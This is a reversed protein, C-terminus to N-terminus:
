PLETLMVLPPVSLTPERVAWLPFVHVGPVPVTSIVAPLVMGVVSNVDKLLRVILPPVVVSAALVVIAPFTDIAAPVRAPPENLWLTAPFQDLAPANVLVPVTVKFPAAWATLPDLPVANLLRVSEPVRALVKALSVVIDPLRLIAGVPVAVALRFAPVVYVMPVRVRPPRPRTLPEQPEVLEDADLVFLVYKAAVEPMTLAVESVRAVGVAVSATFLEGCVYSPVGLAAVTLILVLETGPDTVLIRVPPVAVLVFAPV